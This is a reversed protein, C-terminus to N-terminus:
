IASNKKRVTQLTRRLLSDESLTCVQRMSICIFMFVYVSKHASRQVSTLCTSSQLSQTYIVIMKEPATYKGLQVQNTNIVVM